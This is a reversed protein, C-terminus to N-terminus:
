QEDFTETSFDMGQLGFPSTKSSPSIKPLLNGHISPLWNLRREIGTTVPDDTIEITVRKLTVGPGFSATLDQPDVLEVSTPDHIGRFRVLLPYYSPDLVHVGQGEVVLKHREDFSPNSTSAPPSFAWYPAMEPFNFARKGGQKLLAFLTRGGPLDVAVAEGRVNHRIGGAEPGPFGRGQDRTQVEIVSSGSRLGQPTEVEVTLRYRFTELQRYCGSLVPIVLLACGGALLSRRSM